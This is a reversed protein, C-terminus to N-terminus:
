SKYITIWTFVMIEYILKYQCYLEIINERDLLWFKTINISSNGYNESHGVRNESYTLELFTPPNVQSSSHTGLNRYKKWRQQSQMTSYPSRSLITTKKFTVSTRSNLYYQNDQFNEPVYLTYQRDCASIM